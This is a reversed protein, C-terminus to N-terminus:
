FEFFDEGYLDTQIDISLATYLLHKDLTGEWYEDAYRNPDTESLTVNSWDRFDTENLLMDFGCVDKQFVMDSQQWTVKCGCERQFITPSQFTSQSDVDVCAEPYLMGLTTTSAINEQNTCFYYCHDRKRVADEVSLGQQISKTYTNSARRYCVEHSQGRFLGIEDGNTDTAKFKETHKGNTLPDMPFYLDWEPFFIPAGRCFISLCNITGHEDAIPQPCDGLEVLSNDGEHILNKHVYENNVEIEIDDVFLGQNGYLNHKSKSGITFSDTQISASGLPAVHKVPPNFGDQGDSNRLFNSPHTEESPLDSVTITKGDKFLYYRDVDGVYERLNSFGKRISM